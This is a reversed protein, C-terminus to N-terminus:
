AVESFLYKLDFEPLLNTQIALAEGITFETLGNLKNYLTKPACDILKCVIEPKIRKRELENKVCLM